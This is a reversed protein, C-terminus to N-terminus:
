SRSRAAEATAGHPAEDPRGHLLPRIEVCGGYRTIPIMEALRTAHDLDDAEVLYFGGLVEKTDAFPGDTVLPRGGQERLTTATDTPMLQAGDLCAPDERLAWFERSAAVREEADLHDMAGPQHYVLLAYRM